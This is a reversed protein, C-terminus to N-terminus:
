KKNLDLARIHKNKKFKLITKFGFRKFYDPKLTSLLINSPKEGKYKILEIESIVKSVLKTGIGSKQHRKSVNVWMMEYTRFSLSSMIYGVFGLIEGSEEAVMFKPEYMKNEFMALLHKKALLSYKKSNNEEIIKVTKDIENKRLYRVKM